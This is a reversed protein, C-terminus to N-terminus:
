ANIFYFILTFTGMSVPTLHYTIGLKYLWVFGQQIDRCLTISHSLKSHQCKKHNTKCLLPTFTFMNCLTIHSSVKHNVIRSFSTEQWRCDGFAWERQFLSNYKRCSLPINTFQHFNFLLHMKQFILSYKHVSSFVTTCFFNTLM